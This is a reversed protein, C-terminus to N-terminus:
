RLGRVPRKYRFRIPPGTPSSSYSSHLAVEQRSSAVISAGAAYRGCRRTDGPQLRMTRFTINAQLDDM